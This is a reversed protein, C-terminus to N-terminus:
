YICTLLLISTKSPNLQFILKITRSSSKRLKNMGVTLPMLQILMKPMQILSQKEQMQVVCECEYCLMYNLYPM